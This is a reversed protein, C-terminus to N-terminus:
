GWLACHMKLFKRALQALAQALRRTFGAGRNRGFGGLGNCGRDLRRLRRWLRCAVRQFVTRDEIAQRGADQDIPKVAQNICVAGKEVPGSIRRQILQGFGAAEVAQEDLGLFVGGRLVRDRVLTSVIAVLLPLCFGTSPRKNLTVHPPSLASAKISSVCGLAAPLCPRSMAAASALLLDAFEPCNQVGAVSPTRIKFLLPRTSEPL